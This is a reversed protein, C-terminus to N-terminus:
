RLSGIYEVWQSNGIKASSKMLILLNNKHLIVSQAGEASIGIHVTTSGLTIKENAGFGQALQEIGENTNNRLKEPLPQQSVNIAVNSIKDVYTHVPDSNQPSVRTWGGLDEINKGAPLLTPYDPTGKTLGPASNDSASETVPQQMYSGAVIVAVLALVALSGIIQVKRPYKRNIRLLYEKARTFSLSSPLAPLEIKIEITKGAPKALPEDPAKPARAATQASPNQGPLSVGARRRIQKIKRSVPRRIDM